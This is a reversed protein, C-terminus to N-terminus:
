LVWRTHAGCFATCASSWSRGSRCAGLSLAERPTRAWARGPEGPVSCLGAPAGTIRVVGEDCAMERERCLRHEIWVLASEAPVSGPVAESYIQGITTAACISRKTCCM